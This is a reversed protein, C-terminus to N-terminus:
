IVLGSGRYKSVLAQLEPTLAGSQFAAVEADTLKRNLAADRSAPDAYNNNAESWGMSSNIQDYLSPRNWDPDYASKFTPMTTNLGSPAAGAIIHLGYDVTEYAGGGALLSSDISHIADSKAQANGSYYGRLTNVQHSKEPDYGNAQSQEIALNLAATVWQETPNSATMTTLYTSETARYAKSSEYAQVNEPVTASSLATKAASGSTSVSSTSPAATAPTSAAAVTPAASTAQTLQSLLLGFNTVAEALDPLSQAYVNGQLATKVETISQNFSALAGELAQTFADASMSDNSSGYRAASVGTASTASVASSTLTLGM